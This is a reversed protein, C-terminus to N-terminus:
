EIRIGSSRIIKEWMQIERALLNRFDNPTNPAAIEAADASIKEKMEPTNTVALVDRNIIHVIRDPTKAPAFIGNWSCIDYGPLGAEAISPLDPFAAARKATTIALARLKGTRVLPSATLANTIALQVRGGMVDVMSQGSGKYPIHTIQVGARSKFVEMALHVVSGAGSSAYVLPKVKALAILEKVSNVPLSPTVVMLYPLTVMQVVPAFTKAIDISGPKAVMGAVNQASLMLLTYGDPAAQAAIDIAIAGLAGARNDIVVSRNWKEGVRAAALRMMVDSGSGPPTGVLVRVPKSPYADQAHAARCALAFGM